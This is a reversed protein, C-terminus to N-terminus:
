VSFGTTDRLADSEEESGEKASRQRDRCGGLTARGIDRWWMDTYSKFSDPVDSRWWTGPPFVRTEAVGPLGVLGKVESSMAVVEGTESMGYFLPRVGLPDRGATVTGTREDVSIFAWDGDLRSLAQAPDDPTLELLKTILDVDSRLDADDIGIERCIEKWNYIEGSCVFSHRDGEGYRFPQNGREGLTIIALRHLRVAGDCM